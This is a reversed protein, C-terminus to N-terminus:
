KDNELTRATMIAPVSCGFGLIMPIVAKGNLGMKRMLRDMILAVRAMYGTDELLSMIRWCVM